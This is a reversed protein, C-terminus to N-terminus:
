NLLQISIVKHSLSNIPYILRLLIIHNNRMAIIFMISYIIHSHLHSHIKHLFTFNVQNEERPKIEEILTSPNKLIPKYLYQINSVKNRKYILSDDIIKILKNKFFRLYRDSISPRTKLNQSTGPKSHQKSKSTEKHINSPQIQIKILDLKEKIKGSDFDSIKFYNYSENNILINLRDLNVKLKGEQSSKNIKVKSFIEAKM